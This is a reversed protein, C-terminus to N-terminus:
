PRLLAGVTVASLGRSHLDALIAPLAAVTGRHGFHMSVISGARATAALRRVAVPGPDRFDLTDVDYGIVTRYGADGAAKLVLSTPTRMASPRFYSGPTGTRKTIEDRCRTIERLVEAAGLRGLPPHTWTHNALEHGGGTIRMAMSPQQALWQGVAFVTLHAGAHEAIGM